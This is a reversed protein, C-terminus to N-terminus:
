LAAGMPAKPMRNISNSVVVTEMTSLLGGLEDDDLYTGKLRSKGSMTRRCQQPVYGDGHLLQV